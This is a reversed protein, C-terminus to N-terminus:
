CEILEVTWKKPSVQVVKCYRGALKAGLTVRGSSDTVRLRKGHWVQKCHTKYIGRSTTM